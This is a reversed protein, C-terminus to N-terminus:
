VRVIGSRISGRGCRRGSSLKARREGGPDNSSGIMISMLIAGWCVGVQRATSCHRRTCTASTLTLCCWGSTPRLGGSM